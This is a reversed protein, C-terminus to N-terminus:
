PKPKEPVTVTAKPRRLGLVRVLYATFREGKLPLPPLEDRPRM